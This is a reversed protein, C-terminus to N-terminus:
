DGKGRQIRKLPHPDIAMRRWRMDAWFRETVKVPCDKAGSGRRWKEMIGCANGVGRGSGLRGFRGPILWATFNPLPVSQPASGASLEGDPKLGMTLSRAELGQRRRSRRLGACM